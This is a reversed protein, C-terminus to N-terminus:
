EEFDFCTSIAGVFEVCILKFYSMRVNLDICYLIISPMVEFYIIFDPPIPFKIAFMCGTNSDNLLPSPV